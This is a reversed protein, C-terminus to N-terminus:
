RDENKSLRAGHVALMAAYQKIIVDVEDAEALVCLRVISGWLHCILLATAEIDRDDVPHSLFDRIHEALQAANKRTNAFDAQQVAPDLTPSSWIVLLGPRAKVLDLDSKLRQEIRSALEDFSSVATLAASVGHDIPQMERAFLKGILASRSPFFQYLTGIAVGARKAVETIKIDLSGTEVALDIAADLIRDVKQRSRDQTPEVWSYHPTNTMAISM